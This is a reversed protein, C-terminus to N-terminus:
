LLEDTSDWNTQRQLSINKICAETFYRYVDLCDSVQVFEPIAGVRLVERFSANFDVLQESSNQTLSFGFNQQFKAIAMTVLFEEKENNQFMTKAFSGIFSREYDQEM